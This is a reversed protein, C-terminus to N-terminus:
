VGEEVLGPDGAINTLALFAFFVPEPLHAHSWIRSYPTPEALWIPSSDNVQKDM